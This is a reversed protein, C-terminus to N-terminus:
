EAKRMELRVKDAAFAAEADDCSWPRAASFMQNIVDVGNKPMGGYRPILYFHVHNVSEGFSCVYVREAGLAAKLAASALSLLRGLKAAEGSTLEAIHEVHRRPKLILWGRLLVPSLSHELIWDENEFIVGGPAHVRGENADCALCTLEPSAEPLEM